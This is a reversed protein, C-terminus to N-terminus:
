TPFFVNIPCQVKILNNITAQPTTKYLQQINSVHWDPADWFKSLPHRTQHTHLGYLFRSMELKCSNHENCCQDTILESILRKGSVNRSNTSFNNPHAFFTRPQHSMHDQHYTTEMQPQDFHVNLKHAVGRTSMGAAM